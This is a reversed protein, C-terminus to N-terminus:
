REKSILELLIAYELKKTLIAKAFLKKREATNKGKPQKLKVLINDKSGEPLKNFETKIKKMWGPHLYRSDDPKELYDACERLFESLSRPYWWSLYRTYVGELKGLAANVQRHLVARVFQTNHNHDLVAQKDPIEISTVADKGKQEMLLSDRVKKVDIPNYLHKPTKQNM